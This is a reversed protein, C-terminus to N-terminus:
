EVEGCLVYVVGSDCVYIFWVFCNSEWVLVDFMLVMLMLGVGGFFLVVFWCSLMDLKFVGCLLDIEVIVGFEIEDYLWCM